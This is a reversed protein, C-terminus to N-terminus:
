PSITYAGMRPWMNYSASTAIQMRCLRRLKGEEEEKTRSGGGKALSTFIHKFIEGPFTLLSAPLHSPHRRRKTSEKSVIVRRFSSLTDGCKRRADRKNLSVGILRYWTSNEELRHRVPMLAHPDFRINLKLQRSAPTKSPTPSIVILGCHRQYHHVASPSPPPPPLGAYGVVSATRVISRGIRARRARSAVHTHWRLVKGTSKESVRGGKGEEGGEGGGKGGGSEEEKEKEEEEHCGGTCEDSEFESEKSVGRPLIEKRKERRGREKEEM